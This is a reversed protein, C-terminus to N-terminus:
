SKKCLLVSDEKLLGFKKIEDESKIESCHLLKVDFGFKEIRDVIDNGYLRVHDEQSYYKIRDSSTTVNDDEYTKQLWCIPTSFIFVGEPKLCRRIESFAKEEEYVHEMVHNCIIYDFQDNNFQLKTIDAVVDARGDMIDASVYQAGYIKKLKDAIVSEPAFHLIRGVDGSFIDTFSKMIDYVFRARDYSGCVTCGGRRKGAGAISKNQFIAYDEGIYEWAFIESGCINCCFGKRGKQFEELSKIKMRDVGKSLLASTIEQYFNGPTVIICDYEYKQICEPSIYPINTYEEPASEQVYTDTVAVIEIDPLIELVDRIFRRGGIEWDM